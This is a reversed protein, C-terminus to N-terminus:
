QELNVRATKINVEHQKISDDNRDRLENIESMTLKKIDVHSLSIDHDKKLRMQLETVMMSDMGIDALTADNPQKKIDIKYFKNCLNDKLKRVCSQTESKQVSSLVAHPSQM